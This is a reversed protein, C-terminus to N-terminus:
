REFTLGDLDGEGDPENFPILFPNTMAERGITTRPGHGPIVDVDGPLGMLRDMISKILADYDGGPFDSRGISGAFLTDGSLLIKEEECYYCVGGPTHGPTSIVRFSLGAVSLVEGDRIDVTPFPPEAPAKAYKYFFRIGLEALSKDAPDLYVPVDKKALLARVGWTHDFHGHTLLIGEPELGHEELYRLLLGCETEDSMGPDVIACGKEGEKWLIACCAGLENFHFLKINIM